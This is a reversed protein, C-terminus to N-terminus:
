ITRMSGDGQMRFLIDVRTGNDLAIEMRGDIQETLAEVLELGLELESKEPDRVLGKGNDKVSMRYLDDSERVVSIEIHGGTVYPFAHQYCNTLLECLIIGVQISTDANLKLGNSEVQHSVSRSNPDFMAKMAFTIQNLFISLDINRLDTQAYLKHHVLAMSDIRRKGRMYELKAQRDAIRGAQLNLISSVVQLNNKVRHHVERDLIERESLAKALKREQTRSRKEQREARLDTRRGRLLAWTVSIGLLLLLVAAAWLGRREGTGWQSIPAMDLVVGMRVESGSFSFPVLRAMYHHENVMISFADETNHARWRALAYRSAEGFAGTDAVQWEAGTPGLYLEAHTGATASLGRVLRPPALAFHMVRYPTGPETSRVLLSVDARDTTDDLATISWIPVTGRDGLAEGFWLSRRPDTPSEGIGARAAGITGHLPWEFYLPLDTSATTYTFRWNAGNRELLLESGNENALGISLIAWEAELVPQWREILRTHVLSDQTTIFAAEERLDQEIRQMVQELRGRQEGTLRDMAVAGFEEENKGSQMLGRVVLAACLAWTIAVAAIVAISTLEQKRTM